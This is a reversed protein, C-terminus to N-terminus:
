FIDTAQDNTKGDPVPVASRIENSYKEYYAQIAERIVASQTIALHSSLKTIQEHTTPLISYTRTAM